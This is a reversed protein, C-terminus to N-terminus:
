VLVALEVEHDAVTEVLGVGDWVQAFQQVDSAFLLEGYEVAQVLLRVVVGHLAPGHHVGGECAEFAGFYEFFATPTGLEVLAQCWNGGVALDDDRFVPVAPLNDLLLLM